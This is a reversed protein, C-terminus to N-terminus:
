SASKAVFQAIAEIIGGLPLEQDICGTAVAEKPMGYVVASEQSEAITAAGAERLAKVGVSGDHGMGTMVVALVDGEFNKAVSEFLRDVSPVYHDDKESDSLVLSVGRPGVRIEGHRGGPMIYVKGPLVLDGQEAESITFPSMRNLREAFARTFKPPMHQAVVFATHPGPTLGKLMTQLAPPGGTSAGICVLRTLEGEALGEPTGGTSVEAAPTPSRVKTFPVIQLARVTKAKHLLESKLDPLDPSLFRDPKAIFELAGLELAQFVDQKGSHSSIVIV